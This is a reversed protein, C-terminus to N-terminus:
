KSEALKSYLEFVLHQHSKPFNSWSPTKMVAEANKNIFCIAGDKLDEAQHLDSLVLLRVANDVTLKKRLKKDCIQKLDQIDYKNAAVLLEEALNGVQCHGTYIFKLLAKFAAPTVDTIEAENTKNEKMDHQFMADFVPSRAALIVKHAAIKENKVKFVFDAYKEDLVKALDECVKRRARTTETKEMLCNCDDEEIKSETAEVRCCITLTDNLLLNNAPNELDALRVFKPYGWCSSIKRHFHDIGFKEGDADLVSFEVRHSTDYIKSGEAKLYVSTWKEGNPVENDDSQVDGQPYFKLRFKLDGECDAPFSQSCISKGPENNLKQTSYNSIKWTFELIKFSDM